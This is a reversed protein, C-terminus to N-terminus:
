LGRGRLYLEVLVDCTADPIERAGTHPSQQYRSIRNEAM